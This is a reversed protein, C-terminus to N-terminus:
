EKSLFFASTTASLGVVGVSEAFDLTNEHSVVEKQLHVVFSLYIGFLFLILSITIFTIWELPQVTIRSLSRRNNPEAM